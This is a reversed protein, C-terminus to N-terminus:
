CHDTVIIYHRPYSHTSSYRWVKVGNFVSVFKNKSVKLVFNAFTGVFSPSFYLKCNRYNKCRSQNTYPVNQRLMQRLYRSNQATHIIVAYVNLGYRANFV